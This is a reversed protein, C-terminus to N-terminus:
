EEIQDKIFKRHINEKDKSNLEYEDDILSKLNTDEDIDSDEYEDKHNPGGNIEDDSMEAEEEILNKYKFNAM